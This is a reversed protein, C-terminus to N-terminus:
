VKDMYVRMYMTRGNHSRTVQTPEGLKPLIRFARRTPTVERSGRAERGTETGKREVHGSAVRKRSASPKREWKM